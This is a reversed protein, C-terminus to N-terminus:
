KSLTVHQILFGFHSEKGGVLVAQGTYPPNAQFYDKVCVSHTISFIRLTARQPCGKVQSRPSEVAVVIADIDSREVGSVWTAATVWGIPAVVPIAAAFMVLLPFLFISRVWRTPYRYSFHKHFRGKYGIAIAIVPLLILYVWRAFSWYQASFFFIFNDSFAIFILLGVFTALVGGVLMPRLGAFQRFPVISTSTMTNIRSTLWGFKSIPFAQQFVAKAGM